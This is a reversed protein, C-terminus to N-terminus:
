LNNGIKKIEINNFYKVKLIRKIFNQLDSFTEFIPSVLYYNKRNTKNAKIEEYDLYLLFGLKKFKKISNIISNINNSKSFIIYYGSNFNARYKAFNFENENNSKNKDAKFNNKKESDENSNDIDINNNIIINAVDIKNDLGIEGKKDLEELELNNFSKRLFSQDLAFKIREKFYDKELNDYYNNFEHYRGIYYGLVFFIFIIFILISSIYILNSKEVILKDKIEKEKESLKNM